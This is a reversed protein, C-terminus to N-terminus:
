FQIPYDFVPLSIVIVILIGIVVICFLPFPSLGVAREPVPFLFRTGPTSVVVVVTYPSAM